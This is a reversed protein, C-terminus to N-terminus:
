VSGGPVLLCKGITEVGLWFASEEYRSDVSLAAAHKRLSDIEMTFDRLFSDALKDYYVENGKRIEEFAHTWLFSFVTVIAVTLALLISVILRILYKYKKIRM